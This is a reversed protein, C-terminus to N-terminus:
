LQTREATGVAATCAAEAVAVTFAVEAAVSAPAEARRFAGNREAMATAASPEPAFVARVALNPMAALPGAIAASLSRREKPATTFAACAAATGAPLGHRESPMRIFTAHAEAEISDTATM